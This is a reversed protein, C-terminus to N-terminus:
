DISINRDDPNVDSVPVHIRLQGDELKATAKSADVGTKVPITEAYSSYSRHNEDEEHKSVEVRLAHEAPWSVKVDEKVVGPVDMLIDVTGDNNDYVRARRSDTLAQLGNYAANARRNIIEFPDYGLFGTLPENFWDNMFDNLDRFARTRYKRADTLDAERRAEVESKKADCCNENKDDGCCSCDKDENDATNDIRIENTM